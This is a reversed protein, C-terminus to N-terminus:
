VWRGGRRWNKPSGCGREPSNWPFCRCRSLGGTFQIRARAVGRHIKPFHGGARSMEGPIGSERLNPIGRFEGTALWDCTDGPGYRACLDGLAGTKASSAPRPAPFESGPATGSYEGAGRGGRTEPRIASIPGWYDPYRLPDMFGVSKGAIRGIKSETPAASGRDIPSLTNRPFNRIRFTPSNRAAIVARSPTSQSGRRRGLRGRKPM